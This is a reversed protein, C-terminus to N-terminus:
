ASCLTQVGTRSVIDLGHCCLGHMTPIVFYSAQEKEGVTGQWGRRAKAWQSLCCKAVLIVIVSLMGTFLDALHSSPLVPFYAAPACACFLSTGVFV